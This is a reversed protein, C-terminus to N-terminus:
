QVVPRANVARARLGKALHGAPDPSRQPPIPSKTPDSLRFRHSLPSTGRAGGSARTRYKWNLVRLGEPATFTTKDDARSTRPETPTPHEEQPAELLAGAQGCAPHWRRFSRGGHRRHDLGARRRPRTSRIQRRLHQGGLRRRLPRTGALPIGWGWPGGRGERGVVSHAFGEEDFRRRCLSRLRRGPASPVACRSRM